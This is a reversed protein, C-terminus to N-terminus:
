DLAERLKKVQLALAAADSMANQLNQNGFGNYFEEETLQALYEDADTVFTGLATLFTDLARLVEIKKTNKHM